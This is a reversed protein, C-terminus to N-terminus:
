LICKCRRYLVNLASPSEALKAQSLPKSVSFIASVNATIVVIAAKMALMADGSGGNLFKPKPNARPTNQANTDEVSNTPANCTTISRSEAANAFCMSHIRSPLKLWYM